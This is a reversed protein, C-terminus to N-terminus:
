TTVPSPTAATPCVTTRRATTPYSRTPRRPTSKRNEPPNPDPRPQKEKSSSTFPLSVRLIKRLFSPSSKKTLETFSRDIDIDNRAIAIYLDDRSDLRYYGM